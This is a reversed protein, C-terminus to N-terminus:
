AVRQVVLDARADDPGRRPADADESGAWGETLRAMGYGASQPLIRLMKTGFSVFRGSLRLMPRDPTPWVGPRPLSCMLRMLIM